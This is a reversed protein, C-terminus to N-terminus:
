DGYHQIGPPECVWYRKIVWIEQKGEVRSSQWGKQLFITRTLWKEILNKMYGQMSMSLQLVKGSTIVEKVKWIISRFTVDSFNNVKKVINKDRSMSLRMPYRQVKVRRVLFFEGDGDVLKHGRVMKIELHKIMVKQGNVTYNYSKSM